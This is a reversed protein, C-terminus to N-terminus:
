IGHETWGARIFAAAAAGAFMSPLMRRTMLMAACAIGVGLRAPWDGHVIAPGALAAIVCTGLHKLARAFGSSSRRARSRAVPRLPAHRSYNLGHPLDRRVTKLLGTM